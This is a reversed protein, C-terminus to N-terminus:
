WAPDGGKMVIERYNEDQIINLFYLCVEIDYDSFTHSPDQLGIEFVTSGHRPGYGYKHDERQCYFGDYNKCGIYETRLKVVGHAIDDIAALVAKRTDGYGFHRIGRVKLLQKADAIKEPIFNKLVLQKTVQLATIDREIETKCKEFDKVMCDRRKLLTDIDLELQQLTPM